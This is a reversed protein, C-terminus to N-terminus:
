SLVYSLLVRCCSVYIPTPPLPSIVAPLMNSNTTRRQPLRTDTHVGAGCSVNGQPKSYYAVSERPFFNNIAAACGNHGAHSLSHTADVIYTRAHGM